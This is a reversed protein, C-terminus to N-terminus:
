GNFSKGLNPYWSSDILNPLKYCEESIHYINAIRKMLFGKYLNLDYNEHGLL